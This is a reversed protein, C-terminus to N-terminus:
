TFSFPTNTWTQVWSDARMTWISPSIGIPRELGDYEAGFGRFCHMPGNYKDYGPHVKGTEGQKSFRQEWGVTSEVGDPPIRTIRWKLANFIM